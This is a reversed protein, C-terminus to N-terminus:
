FPHPCPQITPEQMVTRQIALTHIEEGQKRLFYFLIVRGEKRQENNMMPRLQAEEEWFGTRALGPPIRRTGLAWPLLEPERVHRAYAAASVVALKETSTTSKNTSCCSRLM